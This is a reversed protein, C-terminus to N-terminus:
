SPRPKRRSRSSRRVPKKVELIFSEVNFIYVKPLVKSVVESASSGEAVAKACNNATASGLFIKM